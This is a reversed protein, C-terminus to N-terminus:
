ASQEDEQLVQEKEHEDHERKSAHNFLGIKNLRNYVEDDSFEHKLPSALWATSILDQHNAENRLKEHLILLTEGLQSRTRPELPDVQLTTIYDHGQWNRCAVVLCVSWMLRRNDLASVVLSGMDAVREDNKYVDCKIGLMSPIHVLSLGKLEESLVVDCTKQKNYRKVKRAKKSM